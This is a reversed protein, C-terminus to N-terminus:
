KINETATEYSGCQRIIAPRESHPVLADWVFWEVASFRTHIAQVAYRSNDGFLVKKSAPQGAKKTDNTEAKM